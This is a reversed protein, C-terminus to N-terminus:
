IKNWSNTTITFYEWKFYWFYLQLAVMHLHIMFCCHRILRMAPALPIMKLQTLLEIFSNNWTKVDCSNQWIMSFYMYFKQTAPANKSKRYTSISFPHSTYKSQWFISRFFQFCANKQACNENKSRWIKSTTDRSHRM